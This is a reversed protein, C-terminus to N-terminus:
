NNEIVPIEGVLAVRKLFDDLTNSGKGAWTKEAL